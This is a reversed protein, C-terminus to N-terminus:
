APSNENKYFLARTNDTVCSEFLRNKLDRCGALLESLDKQTEPVPQSVTIDLYVRVTGDPHQPLISETVVGRLGDPQASSNLQLFSSDLKNVPFDPPVAPLLLLFNGPQQSAGVPLTLENIYRVSLQSAKPNQCCQTTREWAETFAAVMEEWGPYKGQEKYGFGHFSFQTTSVQLLMQRSRSRMELGVQRHEPNAMGAKDAELKVQHIGAIEPFKEKVWPEDKLREIIKFDLAERLSLTFVAERVPPHTYQRSPFAPASM